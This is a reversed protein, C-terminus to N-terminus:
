GNRSELEAQELLEDNGVLKRFETIREEKTARFNHSSCIAPSNLENHGVEIRTTTCGCAYHVIHRQIIEIRETEM